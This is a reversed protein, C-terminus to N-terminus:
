AAWRPLKRKLLVDLGLARGPATLYITVLLLGFVVPRDTSLLPTGGALLFNACLFLGGLAALRTACGLLLAAGVALEGFVVLPAFIGSHPIAVKQLFTVYFSYAEGGAWKALTEHLSAGDFGGHLKELGFRLM